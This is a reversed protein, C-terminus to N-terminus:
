TRAQLLPVAKPGNTMKQLARELTAHANEAVVDGHAVIIRDFEWGLVARASDGAAAKDKTLVRWIASQATKQWAGMCRLYLRMGWSSCRHLNFVLDTVVLTAGKVALTCHRRSVAQDDVHIECQAVRGVTVSMGEVLAYVLATGRVAVEIAAPM